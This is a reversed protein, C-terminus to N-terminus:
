PHKSSRSSWIPELTEADYAKLGGFFELVVVGARAELRPYAMEGVDKTQTLEIAGTKADLRSLSFGSAGHAKGAAFAHGGTAAVLPEEMADAEPLTTQWLVAGRRRARVVVRPTGPGPGKDATFAVDGDEAARAIADPKMPAGPRPCARKEGTAADRELTAGDISRFVVCGDGFAVSGLKDSLKVRWAESGDKPRLGLMTNDDDQRVIGRKGDCYIGWFSQTPTTWVIRGDKLSIALLSTRPNSGVGVLEPVGDDDADVFCTTTDKNGTWSLM